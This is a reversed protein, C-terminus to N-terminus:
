RVRIELPNSVMECLSLQVSYRGPRLGHPLTRCGLLIKNLPVIRIIEEGPRLTIVDGPLTEFLTSALFWWSWWGDKGIENRTVVTGKSDIVRATLDTPYSLTGHYPDHDKVLVRRPAMSANRIVVEIWIEQGVKFTLGRPKISLSLGPQPQCPTTDDPGPAPIRATLPDFALLAVAMILGARISM